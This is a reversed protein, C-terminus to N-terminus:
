DRPAAAHDYVRMTQAQEDRLSRLYALAVRLRATAASADAGSLRGPRAYAALEYWIAKLRGGVDELVRQETYADAYRQVEAYNMFSVAGTSLATDRAAAKLAIFDGAM